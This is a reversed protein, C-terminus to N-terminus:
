RQCGDNEPPASVYSIWRNVPPLLGAKRNGQLRKAGNVSLQITRWNMEKGEPPKYSLLYVHKLLDVIDDFIRPVDKGSRAQYCEGGTQGAVYELNGL